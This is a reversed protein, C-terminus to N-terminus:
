PRYVSVNGSLGSVQVVAANSKLSDPTQGDVNPLFDIEVITNYALAHSPAMEILEAVEHANSTVNKARGLSSLSPGVLGM